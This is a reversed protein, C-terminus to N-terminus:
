RAYSEPEVGIRSPPPMWIGLPGLTRRLEDTTIMIRNYVGGSGRREDADPVAGQHGRAAAPPRAPTPDPGTAVIRIVPAAPWTPGMSRAPSAFGPRTRRSNSTAGSVGGGPGPSSAIVAETVSMAAIVAAQAPAAATMWRPPMADSPAHAGIRSTLML